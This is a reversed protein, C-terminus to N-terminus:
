YKVKGRLRSFTEPTMGLYSALYKQPIKQLPAPIRQMFAIYREEATLTLMEVERKLRGLLIMQNWLRGWRNFGPYTEFLSQFQAYTIYLLRSPTLVEFFYSSPEQKLFSDYIGSFSDDFSFGFVTKDGKRDLLYGTQIGEVVFYFYREIQGAETIFEGRDFTKEKWLSCFATAEDHTLQADKFAHLLRQQILPEM